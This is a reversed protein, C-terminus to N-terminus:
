NMSDLNEMIAIRKNGHNSIFAAYKDQLQHIRQYNQSKDPYEASDSMHSEDDEHSDIMKNKLKTPSNM